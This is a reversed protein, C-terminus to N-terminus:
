SITINLIIWKMIALIIAVVLFFVFFKLGCDGRPAFDGIDM